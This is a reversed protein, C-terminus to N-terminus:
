QDVEAMELEEGDMMIQIRPRISRILKIVPNQSRRNGTKPGPVIWQNVILRDLSTWQELMWKVDKISLHARYASFDMVKLRKLGALLDLYGHRRELVHFSIDISLEELMPLQGIQTFIYDLALDDKIKPAYSSGDIGFNMKRLGVCKWSTQYIAEIDFEKVDVLEVLVEVNLSLLNPLGSLIDEVIEIGRPSACFSKLSLNVLSKAFYRPMFECLTESYSARLDLHLSQLGEEEDIRGGHNASDYGVTALLEVLAADDDLEVCLGLHKLRSRDKSRLVHATQYIRVENTDTLVEPLELRELLPSHDLLALTVELELGGNLFISIERYQTDGTEQMLEKMLALEAMPDQGNHLIAATEISLCHLHRCAHILELIGVFPYNTCALRFDRLAPRHSEVVSILAGKYYCKMREVTLDLRQLRTAQKAIQLLVKSVDEYNSSFLKLSQLNHPSFRFSTPSSMNEGDGDISRIYEQRRILADTPIDKKFVISRWLRPTFASHWEKSVLVCNSLDRTHLYQAISDTLLPIDFVSIKM